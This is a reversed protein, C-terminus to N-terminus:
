KLKWGCKECRGSEGRITRRWDHDIYSLACRARLALQYLPDPASWQVAIMAPLAFYWPILSFLLFGVACGIAFSVIFQALHGLHKKQPEPKAPSYAAPTSTTYYWGFSGSVLRAMNEYPDDQKPMEPYMQEPMTIGHKEAETKLDCMPVAPCGYVAALEEIRKRTEPEWCARDPIALAVIKAKEARVGSRHAETRGWVAIAGFVVDANDFGGRVNQPDHYAYLGCGCAHGPADHKESKPPDPPEEVYPSWLGAWSARQALDLGPCTAVNLGPTWETDGAGLSRLKGNQIRWARYGIVPQILDPMESM